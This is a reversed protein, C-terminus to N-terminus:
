PLLMLKAIISFNISTDYDIPVAPGIRTYKFTSPYCMELYSIHSM